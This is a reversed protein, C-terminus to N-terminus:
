SIFDVGFQQAAGPRGAAQMTPSCWSIAEPQMATSSFGVWFHWAPRRAPKGEIQQTFKIFKVALGMQFWLGM